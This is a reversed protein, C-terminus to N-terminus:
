TLREDFKSGAAAGGTPRPLLQVAGIQTCTTAGRCASLDGGLSARAGANTYNYTSTIRIGPLPQFTGSAVFSYPLPYVAQFKVTTGVGDWWGPTVNCFGQTRATTSSQEVQPFNNRWCDDFVTR